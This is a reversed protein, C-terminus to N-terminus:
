MTVLGSFVYGQPFCPSILTSRDFAQAKEYGKRNQYKNAYLTNLCMKKNVKEINVCKMM